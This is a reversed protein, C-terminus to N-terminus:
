IYIKLIIQMKIQIYNWMYRKWPIEKKRIQNLELWIKNICNKM